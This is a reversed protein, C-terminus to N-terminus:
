VYLILRRKRIQWMGLRKKKRRRRPVLLVLCGNADKQSHSINTRGNIKHCVEDALELEGVAGGGRQGGDRSRGGENFNQRACLCQGNNACLEALSLSLSFSFRVLVKVM